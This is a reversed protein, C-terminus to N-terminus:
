FIAINVFKAALIFVVGVCFGMLLAKIITKKNNKKNAAPTQQVENEKNAENNM